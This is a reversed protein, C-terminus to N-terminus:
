IQWLEDGGTRILTLTTYYGNTDVVDEQSNIIYTGTYIHEKGYFLVNIKIQSMLVINRLLGRVRLTAKVPFSTLSTWWTRNSETVRNLVINEGVRDGWTAKINGEDDLDYKYSNQQLEGDYDYLISFVDETTVNFGLVVTKDPFGIDISATLLDEQLKSGKVVKVIKFYTGGFTNKIDDFVSITYISNKILGTNSDTNSRMCSVLYTLYRLINIGNQAEIRVPVDDVPILGMTEVLQKDVMGEFIDTLRYKTSYLIEKILESPRRNNYSPFNYLGGSIQMSDSVATVTYKIVAHEFSQTVKTIIAKEERYSFNPANADGYSFTIRRDKKAKSFVKEFFNPDDTFTVPYVINLTYNNVMGNANKKVRLSQIYNPYDVQAINGVFNKQYVGFTLGAMEVKIFPAGVRNTASLIDLTSNIM